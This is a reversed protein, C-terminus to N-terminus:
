SLVTVENILTRFVQEETKNRKHYDKLAFNTDLNILAQNISSAGGTGIVGRASDWLISLSEIQLAQATALFSL